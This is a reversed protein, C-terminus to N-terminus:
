CLGFIACWIVHSMLSAVFWYHGLFGSGYWIYIFGTIWVLFILLSLPSRSGSGNTVRDDVNVIKVTTSIPSIYSLGEPM